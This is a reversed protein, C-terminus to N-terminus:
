KLAQEKNHQERQKQIAKLARLKKQQAKRSHQMLKIYGWILTAMFLCTLMYPGYNNADM